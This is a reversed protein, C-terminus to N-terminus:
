FPREREEKIIVIVEALRDFDSAPINFERRTRTSAHREVTVLDRSQYLLKGAEDVFHIVLDADYGKECANSLEAEWHVYALGFESGEKSWENATVTICAEEAAFSALSVSSLLLSVALRRMPATRNQKGPNDCM